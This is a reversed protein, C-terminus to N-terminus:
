SARPQPESARALPSRSARVSAIAELPSLRWPWDFGPPAKAATADSIGMEILADVFEQDFLLYSLLEGHTPSDGGLLRNLLRM